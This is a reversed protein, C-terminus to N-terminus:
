LYRTWETMLFGPIAWLLQFLLLYAPNVMGMADALMLVLVLLLGVCGGTIHILSGFWTASELTRAGTIAFAAASLGEQTTLACLESLEPEPQWSAVAKRAEADPILFNQSHVRFKSKMFARDLLFNDSTLITKLRRQSCLTTLGARVRRLKGFSVAFIGSLEGDIAAYVAQTVGAEPPIDINRNKLFELTGVLVPVGCVMASMGGDDHVRRDLAQFHPANRNELLQTFLSDFCTQSQATVAAALAIILDPDRRTYFKMGNIKVSGAPLLDSDALPVVAAGACTQVGAWGCLVSGLRHLKRQLVACSRSVTLFMTVPSAALLAGAWAQLGQSPGLRFWGGAGIALSIVLAALAYRNLRRQPAPEDQYHEMFDEVEGQSVFFGPLGEYCDPAKSVRSLRTAKRLTDMQALEVNKKQYAAWLTMTVEVCFLSCFPVRIERLCFVGDAACALFTACLLTDMTFRGKFIAVFGELLHGSALLASFLMAFCQSFVLLRMRDPRVMDFQYLVVSVVALASVLMSVFIAIQLGAFGEELLSYYRREPGEMLKQKLEQIRSRPRFPIPEPPIYEGAPEEYAPEWGECFPEPEELPAFRITAGDLAPAAEAQAQGQPQFARTDNDSSQLEGLKWAQPQDPTVPTETDMM